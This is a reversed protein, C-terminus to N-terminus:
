RQATHHENCNGITRNEQVIGRNYKPKADIDLHKENQTTTQLLTKIINM